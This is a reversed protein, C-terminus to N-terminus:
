FDVTGSKRPCGTYLHSTYIFHIECIEYIDGPDESVALSIYADNACKLRFKFSLNLSKEPSVPPLLEYRYKIDDVTAFTVISSM